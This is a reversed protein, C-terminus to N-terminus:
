TRWSPWKRKRFPALWFLRGLAGATRCLSNLRRPSVLLVDMCTLAAFLFSQALGITTSLLSLAPRPHSLLMPTWSVMQGGRFARSLVYGLRLREAPVPEWVIAEACWVLRAGDAALQNFYVTDEGGVRNLREDFTVRAVQPSGRRVLYNGTAFVAYKKSGRAWFPTLVPSSLCAGSTHDSPPKFVSMYFSRRASDAMEPILPLVPGFVVDAEYRCQTQLLSHLWGPTAVEDDDLSALFEGSAHYLAANRAHSVGPRPEHVYRIPIELGHSMESVLRAASADPCNDVVLLEITIDALGTQTLCSGICRRLAIPRRFTPIVITVRPTERCTFALQATAKTGGSNM